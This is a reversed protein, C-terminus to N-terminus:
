DEAPPCALEPHADLILRLLTPESRAATLVLVPEDLILRSGRAASLVSEGPRGRGARAQAAATEWAGDRAAARAANLSAEFESVDVEGADVAKLYGRPRTGIRAGAPGLTKRLRKVVGDCRVVLSGLLCFEIKTAL